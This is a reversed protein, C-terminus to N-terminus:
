SASTRAITSFLGSFGDDYEYLLAEASHKGSVYGRRHHWADTGCLSPLIRIDTGNFSDVSVTRISKRKHYHGLHIEHCDTEAWQRPVETAMLIPLDAHKEENGHTFGLLTKGYTYYKRPRCSFDVHVSPNNHFFAWIFRAAHLSSQRDHNGPVLLIDVPATELM